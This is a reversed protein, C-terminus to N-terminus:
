HGLCSKLSVAIAELMLAYQGPGAPIESGLPDVVGRKAATGEIVTEIVRTQFQPESFVCRAGSDRVRARLEALRRAGPLVEPNVTISGVAELGFRREFYQFADHFVLFGAGSVPRLELDLKNELNVISEDFRAANGKFTAADKPFREALVGAVYTAAARANRPDLWFHPDVKLHNRDGGHDDAHAVHAMHAEDGSHGADADDGHMDKTEGHSHREFAVGTRVDLQTIGPGDMLPVVKVTAPLSGAIRAIPIELDFDALFVFDAANLDHAQSPKLAFSHPSQVGELLLNPTGVGEMVAAVISHLPKITVVVKPAVAGEASAARTLAFLIAVAFAWRRRFASGISFVDSM